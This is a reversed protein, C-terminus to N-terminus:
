ELLVYKLDNPTYLSTLIMGLGYNYSRQQDFFFYIQSKSNVFSMEYALYMISTNSYTIPSSTLHIAYVFIDHLPMSAVADNYPQRKQLQPLAKAPSQHKNYPVNGPKM